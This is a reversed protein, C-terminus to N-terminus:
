VERVPSRILEDDLANSNWVLSNVVDLGSTLAGDYGSADSALQGSADGGDLYLDYNGAAAAGQDHTVELQVLMAVYKTVTNDIESTRDEGLNATADGAGFGFDDDALPTYELLGTAPDVYVGIMKLNLRGNDNYTITQGTVNRAIFRFYQPLM